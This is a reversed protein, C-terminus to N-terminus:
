NRQIRNKLRTLNQARKAAIKKALLRAYEQNKTERKVIKDNVLEIDFRSLDVNFITTLLIRSIAIKATTVFDRCFSIKTTVNFERSFIKFVRSKFSSVFSNAQLIITKSFDHSTITRQTKQSLSSISVQVDDFLNAHNHTSIANSNDRDRDCDRERIM